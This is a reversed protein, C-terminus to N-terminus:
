TQAEAWAAVWTDVHGRHALGHLWPKREGLPLVASARLVAWRDWPGLSSLDNRQCRVWAINRTTIAARAQAELPASEWISPGLVRDEVCKPLSALFWYLWHRVFRSKRAGECEPLSRLTDMNGEVVDPTMMARLYLFADPLVPGLVDIGALCPKVLEVVRLRRGQRLAHRVLGLNIPKNSMGVRLLRSLVLGRVAKKEVEEQHEYYALIDDWPAVDELCRPEGALMRDRLDEIDEETYMDGYSCVAQAAELLEKREHLDDSDIHGSVFAEAALVETKGAALRLRHVDYLYFALKEELALLKDRDEAFVRIDDVYRAHEFGHIRIFQDIDTLLAESMVISAAPGVPIGQSAKGNLTTIFDEVTKAIGTPQCKAAVLASNLRHSYISNYFDAIDATLVYGHGEALKRCRNQFAPYGNGLGFFSDSTPSVRYSFVTEESIPIRAAEVYGSVQHALATYTIADLPQLQHVMRYGGTSKPAPMMRPTEVPLKEVNTGALYDKVEDWKAWIAELVMPKPFFDSDYYRDIHARAFDLSADALRTM